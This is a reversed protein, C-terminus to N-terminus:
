AAEVAVAPLDIHFVVGAGPRSDAALRGGHAEVISRCIALGLGMGDAKTTTYPQFLRRSVEPALGPGNDCVDLLVRGDYSRSRIELSRPEPRGALADCSNKILNVLVQQLQVPDALIPPLDEELALAAQLGQDQLERRVLPLTERVITNLDVTERQAENKRLFERLRRIV